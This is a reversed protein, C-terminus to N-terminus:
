CSSLMPHKICSMRNDILLQDRAPPSRPSRLADLDVNAKCVECQERYKLGASDPIMTQNEQNMGNAPWIQRGEVHWRFRQFQEVNLIFGLVRRM